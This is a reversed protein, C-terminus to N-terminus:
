KAASVPTIDVKGTEGDFMAHWRPLDWDLAFAKETLRYSIKQEVVFKALSDPLHVEDLTAPFRGQSVQYSQIVTAILTLDGETVSQDQSPDPRGFPEIIRPYQVLSVGVFALLFVAMFVKKVISTQPRKAALAASKEQQQIISKSATDALERINDEQNEQSM